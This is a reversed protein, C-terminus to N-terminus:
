LPKIDTINNKTLYLEKLEKFELNCLDKFGKDDLNRKRLNLKDINFDKLNINCTKNFKILFHYQQIDKFTIDLKNSIKKNYKLLKIKWINEINEFVAKLIYKSEIDNLM